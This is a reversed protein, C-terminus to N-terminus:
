VYEKADKDIGDIMEQLIKRLDKRKQVSDQYCKEGCMEYQVVNGRVVFSDGKDYTEFENKCNYCTKYYESKM